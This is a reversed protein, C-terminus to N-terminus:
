LYTNPEVLERSPLRKGSGNQLSFILNSAEQPWLSELPSTIASGPDDKTM